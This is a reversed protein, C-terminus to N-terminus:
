RSRMLVAELQPTPLYWNSRHLLHLSLVIWKRLLEPLLLYSEKGTYVETGRLLPTARPTARSIKV